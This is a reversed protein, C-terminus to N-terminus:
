PISGVYFVFYFFLSRVVDLPRVVNLPGAAARPRTDSSM